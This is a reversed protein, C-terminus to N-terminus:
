VFNFLKFFIRGILFIIKQQIKEIIIQEKSKIYNCRNIIFKKKKSKIEKNMIKNSELSSNWIIKLSRELYHSECSFQSHSIFLLLNQYFQKTRLLINERRVLYNAGPSFSLYQPFHNTQFIFSHFENYNAFYQRKYNYKYWSSNIENFEYDSLRLSAPSKLKYSEKEISTFIEKEILTEFYKKDVHREFINNKCFVITEPLNDYNDIIFILYSYLNYGVNKIKINKFEKPLTFNSKNYIIYQSPNLEKIWNLEGDYYSICFFHKSDKLKKNFKKKDKLAM